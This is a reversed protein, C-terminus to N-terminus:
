IQAGDDGPDRPERPMQFVLYGFGGVFGVILLYGLWTPISISLIMALLLLVPSGFVGGWAVARDPTLRPLPPPPPPEYGEELDDADLEDPVDDYGALASPDGFRGGFPAATDSTPPAPPEDIEVREGYNEVISRWAADTANSSEDPEGREEPNSQV